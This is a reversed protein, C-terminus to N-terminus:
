TANRTLLETSPYIPSWGSNYEIFGKELLQLHKIPERDLWAVDENALTVLQQDTFGAPLDRLGQSALYSVARYVFDKGKATLCAYLSTAQAAEHANNQMACGPSLTMLFAIVISRIKKSIFSSCRM